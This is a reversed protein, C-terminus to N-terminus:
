RAARLLTILDREARSRAPIREGPQAAPKATRELALELRDAVSGGHHALASLDDNLTQARDISAHLEKGVGQAVAKLQRVGSEASSTAERLAAAFETLEAQAKRLTALRKNLVVCFGITAGLLAVILGDLLFGLTM